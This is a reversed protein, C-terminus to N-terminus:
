EGVVAILATRQLHRSFGRTKYLRMAPGNREDCALVMSIDGRRHVHNCACDLLYGGLGRGRAAPALGFYVLEMCHAAPIESALSVGCPVGDLELIMWSDPHIIGTNIHGDLIEHSPRIAALGPCDLSDIYTAELLRELPERETPRWPRVVIRSVGQPPLPETAPQRMHPRELYALTGISRMGGALLMELTGVDEPEVLAQVVRVDLSGAAAIAREVLASGVTHDRRTRPPTVYLMATRGPSRTLLAGHSFGGRADAVAFILEGDKLRGAGIHRSARQTSGGFVAAIADSRSSDAPSIVEFSGCTFQNMALLTAVQNNAVSMRM